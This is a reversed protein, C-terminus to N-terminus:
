TETKIFKWSRCKYTCVALLVTCIWHEFRGWLYWQRVSTSRSITWMAVRSAHCLCSRSFTLFFSCKTRTSQTSHMHILISLHPAQVPHSHLAIKPRPQCKHLQTQLQPQCPELSVSRQCSLMCQSLDTNDMDGLSICFSPDCHICNSLKQKLFPFSISGLSLSSRAWM